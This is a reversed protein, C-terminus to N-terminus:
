GICGTSCRARLVQSAIKTLQTFTAKTDAVDMILPEIGRYPSAPTFHLEDVEGSMLLAEAVSEVTHANL